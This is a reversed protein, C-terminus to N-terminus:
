RFLEGNFVITEDAGVNEAFTTSLNDPAKSTTSLRIRTNRSTAGIFQFEADPRFAMQLISGPASLTSFQSAAFVQQIRFDDIPNLSDNGEESTLSSPVVITDAYVHSEFASCLASAVIAVQRLALM